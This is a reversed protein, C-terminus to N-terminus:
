CSSDEYSDEYDADAEDDYLRSVEDEIYGLFRDKVLEKNVQLTSNLFDALQDKTEFKPVEVKTKSM